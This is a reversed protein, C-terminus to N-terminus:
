TESRQRPLWPHEGASVQDISHITAGFTEITHRVSAFDVAPGVISVKVTETHADVELVAINVASIGELSALRKALEIITPEHPKLVDLTLSRIDGAM